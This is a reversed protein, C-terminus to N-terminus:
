LTIGVRQHGRRGRRRCEETRAIQYLMPDNRDGLQEATWELLEARLAGTRQPEDDILNVQELPDAALDYLEDGTFKHWIYKWGGRTISRMATTEAFYHEPLAAEGRVAPLLSQGDMWHPREIGLLDLITPAVDVHLACGPPRGGAPLLGPRWLILPTFVNGDHLGRHGWVDFHQMLQEGHDANVVVATDDLVGCAELEELVEAILHDTYLIEGDYSDISQPHRWPAGAQPQFDSPGEVDGLRDVTGWGPVYKYGAAAEKVPLDDLSGREHVFPRAFEDPQNYPMHPDWYHVFVFFPEGKHQRLWPLLRENVAGGVVHHHVPRSTRTVNVYYEFGRVFQKMHSAFQFLNDFAATTIGGHDQIVEPFVGRLDSFNMIDGVDFPTLYWENNIAYQGTFMSTFAPGTAVANARSGGFLVGEGALRDLTPSTERFYGYCGLHDARLTDLCFWLVNM